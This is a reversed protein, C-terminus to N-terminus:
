RKWSSVIHHLSLIVRMFFHRIAMQMTQDYIESVAIGDEDEWISFWEKEYYIDFTQYSEKSIQNCGHLHKKLAYFGMEQYLPKVECYLSRVKDM